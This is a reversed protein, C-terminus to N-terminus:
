EKLLKVMKAYRLAREYGQAIPEWDRVPLVESKICTMKGFKTIKFISVNDYEHKIFVYCCEELENIEVRDNPHLPKIQSFDM